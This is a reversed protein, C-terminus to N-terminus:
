EEGAYAYRAWSPIKSLAKPCVKSTFVTESFWVGHFTSGVCEGTSRLEVLRPNRYSCSFVKCHSKLLIVGREPIIDFPQFNCLYLDDWFRDCIPMTVQHQFTATSITYKLTWERASTDEVTWIRIQTNDYSVYYMCDRAPRLFSYHRVEPLKILHCGGDRYNFSVIFSPLNLLYVIGDVFNPEHRPLVRGDPVPSCPHASEVWNGAVSSFIEVKVAATEWSDPLLLHVIQFEPSVAPDYVLKLADQLNWRQPKPLAVWRKTLPNCVFYEVAFAGEFSDMWLVVVLGNCSDVMEMPSRPVFSLCIHRIGGDGHNEDALSVYRYSEPRFTNPQYPYFVGLPMVVRKQFEESSILRNWSKCVCKQRHLAKLPLRSFIEMCLDDGLYSQISPITGSSEGAVLFRNRQREM